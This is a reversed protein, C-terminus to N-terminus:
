PRHVIDLRVNRNVLSIKILKRRKILGPIFKQSNCFSMKTKKKKPHDLALPGCVSSNVGDGNIESVLTQGFSGSVANLLRFHVGSLFGHFNGSTLMRKVFSKM